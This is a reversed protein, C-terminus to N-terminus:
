YRWTRTWPLCATTRRRIRNPSERTQRTTPADLSSCKTPRFTSTRTRFGLLEGRRIGLALLWRVILANRERAHDGTWPNDPSEADIVEILRALAEASLGERDDASNRGSSSSPAREELVRCVREANARLEAYLAHKHGGRLLRNTARWDLYDRIYRIRIAATDPDVEVPLPAPSSRMRAKELAVVPALSPRAALGSAGDSTFAHLPLRCQRVVEEVEGLDLLRGENLRRDLNVGLRDLVLYLVMVGRLAQQITSSSRNAARLETLAYLTPEFLPLGSARACLMPLREGSQLVVTRVLYPTQYKRM